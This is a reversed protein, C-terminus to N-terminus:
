SEEIYRLPKSVTRGSRRPLTVNDKAQDAQNNSDNQFSVKKNKTNGENYNANNEGEIENSVYKNNEQNHSMFPKIFRRNRRIQSGNDLEVNYSRPEECKGQIKGTTWVNEGVNQVLVTQGEEMEKLESRATKNYHQAARDSKQLMNNHDEINTLKVENKVPLNARIKRGYLLEAPSPTRNDIPTSRLCLLAMLPETGSQRAKKITAKIVAVM